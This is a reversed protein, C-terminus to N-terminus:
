RGLEAPDIQQAMTPIPGQSAAEANPMGPAIELDDHAQDELM